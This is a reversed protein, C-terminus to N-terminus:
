GIYNDVPLLKGVENFRDIIGMTDGAEIGYAKMTSIISETSEEVTDLGDAVNKYVIATEAMKASEEMSYGLRAFNSTAETFDSITSGIVSATSSATKLFQRYSEDTENTVKKLETMALDIEKVYNLGSRIAQIAEHFGLYQAAINKVGSKLSDGLQQWSNSVQKTGTKYAYLTNTGAKLAITVQEIVGAGKDLTGYMETGAANFGELKFQGNTVEAAYNIMSAKINELQSVDLEQYDILNGDALKDLKQSEKFVSMVGVRLKECELAADQFQQKLGNDNAANPDNLFKERLEKLRQYAEEYQNLQKTFDDSLGLESLSRTNGEIKDHWRDERNYITKGYNQNQKNEKTVAKDSSTNEIDKIKQKYKVQEELLTKKQEETLLESQSINNVDIGIDLLEQKAKQVAEIAAAMRDTYVTGSTDSQMKKLFIAADTYRKYISSINELQQNEDKQQAREQNKYYADAEKKAQAKEQEIRISEKAAAAEEKAKQDYAADIEVSQLEKKLQLEREKIAYYDEATSLLQLSLDYEKQKEAIIRSQEQYDSSSEDMKAQKKKADYLQNQLQIAKNYNQTAQNESDTQQKDAKRQTKISENASRIAQNLNGYAEAIKLIDPATGDDPKLAKQLAELLSPLNGIQKELKDDPFKLNSFDIQVQKVKEGMEDMSNFANVFPNMSSTGKRFLSVVKNYEADLLQMKNLVDDIEDVSGIGNKLYNNLINYNGNPDNDTWKDKTKNNFQSMFKQLTAQAKQRKKIANEEQKAFAKYDNVFTITDLQWEDAESDYSWKETKKNLSSKGVSSRTRTESLDNGNGDTVSTIKDWPQKNAEQVAQTEAKIGESAIKGAEGTTEMSEAVNKNAETFADKKPTTEQAADGESKITNAATKIDDIGDPVQISFDLAKIRVQLDEFIKYIDNAITQIVAYNPQLNEFTVISKLDDQISNVTALIQARVEELRQIDDQINNVTSETTSGAKEVTGSMDDATESVKTLYKSADFSGPQLRNQIELFQIVVEKFKNMEVIASEIEDKKGKIVTQNLRGLELGFGGISSAGEKYIDGFTDEFYITTSRNKKTEKNFAAGLQWLEFVEDYLARAEKKTERFKALPDEQTITQNYIDQKINFDKKSIDDITRSLDEFKQKLTDLDSISSTLMKHLASDEASLANTLPEFANKIDNIVNKIEKLQTIIGNFNVSVNPGNKGNNKAIQLEDIYGQYKQVQKEIYSVYEDIGDARFLASENSRLQEILSERDAIYTKLQSISEEYMTDNEVNQIADSQTSDGWNFNYVEDILEQRRKLQETTIKYQEEVKSNYEQLGQLMYELTKINSEAVKTTSELPADEITFPKGSFLELEKQYSILKKLLEIRDYLASEDMDGENFSLVRWTSKTAGISSLYNVSESIQNKLYQVREGLDAAVVHFEQSLKSMIQEFGTAISGDNFVASASALEAKFQELNAIDEKLAPLMSPSEVKVKNIKEELVSVQRIMSSFERADVKAQKTNIGIKISEGDYKDFFGSVIKEADQIPKTDVNTNVNISLERKFQSSM